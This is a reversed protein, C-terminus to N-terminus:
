QREPEHNAHKINTPSDGNIRVETEFDHPVRFSEAIGPWIAIIDNLTKGKATKETLGLMSMATININHIHDQRDLVIIGESMKDIIVDRSLSSAEVLQFYYIGWIYILGTIILGVMILINISTGPFLHSQFFLNCTLPPIIGCLLLLSKLGLSKPPVLASRILIIIGIGALIYYYVSSIYFWSSHTYVLAAGPTNSSPEISNWFLHYKGEITALCVTIAPEIM